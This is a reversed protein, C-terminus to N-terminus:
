NRHDPQGFSSMLPILVKQGAQLASEDELDNVEMILSSKVGYNRAIKMLSEGPKVAYVVMSTGPPVRLPIVVPHEQMKWAKVEILGHGVLLTAGETPTFDTNKLNFYAVGQTTKPDVGPLYLTRYFDEEVTVSLPWDSFDEGEVGKEGELLYYIKKEISGTLAINDELMEVSLALLRGPGATIEKPYPFNLRQVLELPERATGIAQPLVLFEKRVAEEQIDNLVEQRMSRTVRLFVDIYIRQRARKGLLDHVAYAIRPFLFAQAGKNFKPLTLQQGFQQRIERFGGGNDTLFYIFTVVEGKFTIGDKNLDWSFDTIYSTLTKIYLLEQEFELEKSLTVPFAKEQLLEEVVIVGRSVKEPPIDKVGVAVELQQSDAISLLVEVEIKLKYTLKGETEVPLGDADILSIRGYGNIAMGPLAGPVEVERSFDGDEWDVERPGLESYFIAKGEVKGQLKVKDKEEIIAEILSVRATVDGLPFPQGKRRAPEEEIHLDKEILFHFVTEGVLMKFNLDTTLLALKEGKSSKRGM